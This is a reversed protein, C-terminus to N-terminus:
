KRQIKSPNLHKKGQIHGVSRNSSPVVAFSGGSPAYSVSSSIVTNTNSGDGQSQTTMLPTVTSTVGGGKSVATKTVSFMSDIMSASQSGVNGSTSTPMHDFIFKTAQPHTIFANAPLASTVQTTTAPTAQQVNPPTTHIFVSTAGSGGSNGGHSEILSATQQRSPLVKAIPPDRGPGSAIIGRVVNAQVVSGVSVTVLPISKGCGTNLTGGQVNNANGQQILQHQQGSGPQNVSLIHAIQPSKQTQIQGQNLVTGSMISATLQQNGQQNQQGPPLNTVTITAASNQSQSSTPTSIKGVHAITLAQPIHTTKVAQQIRNNVIIPQLTM